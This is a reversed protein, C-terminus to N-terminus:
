TYYLGVTWLDADDPNYGKNIEKGKAKITKEEIM